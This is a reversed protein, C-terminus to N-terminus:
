CLKHIRMLCTGIEEEAVATSVELYDVGAVVGVGALMPHRGESSLCPAATMEGLPGKKDQVLFCPHRAWPPICVVPQGAHQEGM